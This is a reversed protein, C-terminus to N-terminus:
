SKEYHQLKNGLPVFVGRGPVHDVEDRLTIKPM